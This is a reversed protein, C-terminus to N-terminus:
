PNIGEARAADRIQQALDTPSIVLSPKQNSAAVFSPLEPHREVKGSRVLALLQRAPKEPWLFGPAVYYKGAPVLQVCDEDHPRAVACGAENLLSSFVEGTTSNILVVAGCHPEVRVQIPCERRVPTLEIDGLDLDAATDEAALSLFRYAHGDSLIMLETPQGQAVGDLRFVGDEPDRTFGIAWSGSDYINGSPSAGEPPKLRGSVAIAPLARIDLRYHATDPNLRVTYERRFSFSRKLKQFRINAAKMEAQTASAPGLSINLSEAAPGPELIIEALGYENTISHNPPSMRLADTDFRAIVSVPEIPQGEPDLVSVRITVQRATPPDGRALPGVLSASVLASVALSWFSRM